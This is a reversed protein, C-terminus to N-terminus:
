QARSVGRYRELALTRGDIKEPGLFIAQRTGRETPKSLLYAGVTYFLSPDDLKSKYFIGFIVIPSVAKSGDDFPEVKEIMEKSIRANVEHHYTERPFVTIAETDVPQLASAYKSIWNKLEVTPDDAFFDIEGTDVGILQAPGGGVNQFVVEFKIYGGHENFNLDGAIKPEFKIWPRNEVVIAKEASKAASAAAVAAWGTFFLSAIVAFFGAIGLKTQLAAWWVADEAAQAMRRQQCLDDDERSKPHDCSAKYYGTDSETKAQEAVPSPSPQASPQQQQAQQPPGANNSQASGHGSLPLCMALTLCGRVAVNQLWDGFSM